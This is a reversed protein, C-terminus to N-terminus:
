TIRIGVRHASINLSSLAPEFDVKGVEFNDYYDEVLNSIGSATTVGWWNGEAYVASTTKNEIILGDNSIFNNSYIRYNSGYEIEFVEGVSDKFTNEYFNWDSHNYSSSGGAKIGYANGDLTNQTFVSPNDTSWHVGSLPIGGQNNAFVNNKILHSCM